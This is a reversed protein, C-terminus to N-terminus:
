DSIWVVEFKKGTWIVVAESAERTGFALTDGHLRVSKRLCPGDGDDGGKGCWTQLRGPKETTIFLNALDGQKITDIISIPRGRAGRRIILQYVGPRSPVIQAVDQKGDHDFDGRVPAPAHAVAGALVIAALM